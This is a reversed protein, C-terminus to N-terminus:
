IDFAVSRLISDVQVSGIALVGLAIYSGARPLERPYFAVSAEVFRVKKQRVSVHTALILIRTTRSNSM